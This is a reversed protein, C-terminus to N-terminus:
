IIIIIIVGINIIFQRVTCKKLPVHGRHFGLSELDQPLDLWVDHTKLLCSVIPQFVRGVEVKDVPCPLRTVIDIITVQPTSYRDPDVFVQM